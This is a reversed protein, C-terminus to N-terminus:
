RESDREDGCTGVDADRCFMGSYGDEKFGLRVAFVKEGGCAGRVDLGVVGSSLTPVAGPEPLEFVLLFSPASM